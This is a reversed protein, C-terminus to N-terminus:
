RPLKDVPIRADVAEPDPASFGIIEVFLLNL